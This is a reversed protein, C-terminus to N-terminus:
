LGKEDAFIDVDAYMHVVKGSRIGFFFGNLWFYETQKM